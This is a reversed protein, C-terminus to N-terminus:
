LFRVARAASRQKIGSIRSPSNQFLSLFSCRINSGKGTRVGRLRMDPLLAAPKMRAAM